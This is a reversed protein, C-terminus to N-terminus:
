LKAARLAAVNNFLRLALPEVHMRLNQDQTPKFVLRMSAGVDISIWWIESGAVTRPSAEEFRCSSTELGQWGATGMFEPDEEHGDEYDSGWLVQPRYSTGQLKSGGM